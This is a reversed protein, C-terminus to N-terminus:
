PKCPFLFPVCPTLQQAIVERSTKGRNLLTNLPPTPFDGWGGGQVYTCTDNHHTTMRRLSTWLQKGLLVRYDSVNLYVRSM